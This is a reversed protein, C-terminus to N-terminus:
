AWLKPQEVSRGKEVKVGWSRAKRSERGKEPQHLAKKRSGKRRRQRRETEWGRTRVM